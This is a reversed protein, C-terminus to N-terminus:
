GAASTTLAPDHAAQWVTRPLIYLHCDWWRNKARRHKRYIAEWRLGSKELVRISAHNNIAVTAIVREANLELFAADILVQSLETAFGQGWADHSLMYGLDAVGPELLTLDCAGVLQGNRGDTVAMEFRQRPRATQAAIIDGLYDHAAAADRPGFFMHRTVRPDAGLSYLDDFDAATFDRVRLRATSIPLHLTRV